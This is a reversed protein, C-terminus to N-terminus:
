SFIDESLRELEADDLKAFRSPKRFESEIGDGVYTGEDDEDEGLKRKLSIRERRMETKKRELAKNIMTNRAIESEERPKRWARKWYTIKGNINIGIGSLMELNRPIEEYVDEFRETTTPSWGYRAMLGQLSHRQYPLPVDWIIKKVKPSGGKELGFRVGMNSHQTKGQKDKLDFVHIMRQGLRYKLIPIELEPDGIFTLPYLKLWVNFNYFKKRMYKKDRAHVFSVKLSDKLFEASQEIAWKKPVMATTIPLISKSIQYGYWEIESNPKSRDLYMKGCASLYLKVLTTLNPTISSILPVEGMSLSLKEGHWRMVEEEAFYDTRPIIANLNGDVTFDPMLTPKAFDAFNAVQSVGVLTNFFSAEGKTNIGAKRKRIPSINWNVVTKQAEAEKFLVHKETEYKSLNEFNFYFRIFNLLRVVHTGSLALSHEIVVAFTTIKNEKRMITVFARLRDPSRVLFEEPGERIKKGEVLRLRALLRTEICFNGYINFIRCNTQGMLRRCIEVNPSGTAIKFCDKLEKTLFESGLFHLMCQRPSAFQDKHNLVQAFYALLRSTALNSSASKVLNGDPIVLNPFWSFQNQAQLATLSTRSTTNENSSVWRTKSEAKASIYSIVDSLRTEPDINPMIDEEIKEKQEIELPTLFEQPELNGPDLLNVLMANVRTKGIDYAPAQTQVKIRRGQNYGYNFTKRASLQTDIVKFQQREKEIDELKLAAKKFRAEKDGHDELAWVLADHMSAQVTEPERKTNPPLVETPDPIELKLITRNPKTAQRIFPSVDPTPDSVSHLFVAQDIRYRKAYEHLEPEDKMEKIAKQLEEISQESIEEYKTQKMIRMMTNSTNDYRMIKRMMLMDPSEGDHPMVERSIGYYTTSQGKRKSGIRSM